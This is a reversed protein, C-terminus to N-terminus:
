YKMTYSNVQSMRDGLQSTHDMQIKVDMDRFNHRNRRMRLLGRVKDCEAVSFQDRLFFSLQQWHTPLHSPSTSFEVVRHCLSFVM